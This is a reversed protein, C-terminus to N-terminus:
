KIDFSVVVRDTKPVAQCTLIFGQQVEEKTLAYNAMMEVEGELLKARCTCCVGGKCAFPLDSGIEQAADLINQGKGIPVAFARGDLHVTAMSGVADKIEVYSSAKKPANFLEFHINKEATKCETLVDKVAEIMEVPGCAFYEDGRLLSPIKQFFLTIKAKNLRGHLLESESYERSLVNFIQFRGLFQNKLGELDEKFIVTSVKRNGYILTCQSRPETNLIAKINSIVPTIGSGAAFFIYTKAQKENLVTNFHGMPPMADLSDGVKLVHNAFTSFLGNEVQKVAVRLEKDTPASCISYSRRVEEGDIITKFTLYQGQQFEFDSGYQPPVDFALSVCDSTERRIDQIKLPYFKM